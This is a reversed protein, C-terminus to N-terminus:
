VMAKCEIFIFHPNRSLREYHEQSITRMMESPAGESLSSIYMGARAIDGFLESLSRRYFQVQVPQGVTDWEETILERSFYDGSPSAEFDIIPHHTSFYFAGEAKLVRKVDSFFCSLDEIYHITLPCIVLDFSNNLEKPLGKSLDTAYATVADGFKGKVIEIMEESIDIATVSAGQDLFHEAYAGPGCGLDLIKKGQLEPLMALMSPRELHANFINNAVAKDYDKAHLTYM